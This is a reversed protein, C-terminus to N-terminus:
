VFSCFLFLSTGASPSFQNAPVRNNTPASLKEKKKQGEGNKVLRQRTAMKTWICSPLFVREGMVVLLLFM